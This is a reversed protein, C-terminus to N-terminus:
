ATSCAASAQPKGDTPLDDHPEASADPCFGCAFVPAALKMESNRDGTAFWVFLAGLSFRPSAFDRTHSAVSPIFSVIGQKLL